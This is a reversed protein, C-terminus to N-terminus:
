EPAHSCDLDVTVERQYVRVEAFGFPVNRQCLNPAVVYSYGQHLIGPLRSKLFLRYSVRAVYCCKNAEFTGNPSLSATELRINDATKVDVHLWDGMLNHIVIVGNNITM